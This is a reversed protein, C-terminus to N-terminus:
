QFSEMLQEAERKSILRQELCEIIEAPSAYLAVELIEIARQVEKLDNLKMM